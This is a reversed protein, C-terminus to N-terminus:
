TQDHKVNLSDSGRREVETQKKQKTKKLIVVVLFIFIFIIFWMTVTSIERQHVVTRPGATCCASPEENGRCFLVGTIVCVRPRPGSAELQSSAPVAVRVERGWVKYTQEVIM